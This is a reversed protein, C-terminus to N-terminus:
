WASTSRGPTRPASRPATWTTGPSTACHRPRRRRGEQRSRTRGQQRGEREQGRRRPGHGGRRQVASRASRPRPARGALRINELMTRKLELFQEADRIGSDCKRITAEMKNVSAEARKLNAEAQALMAEYKKPEIRALLTRDKEVWDGERFYVEEVIGSVGAAVDTQGEADLYGVTDVTSTM